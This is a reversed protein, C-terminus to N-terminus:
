EPPGIFGYYRGMWYAMLWDNPRDEREGGRGIVMYYPEQDFMVLGMESRNPIRKLKLGDVGPTLDREVDERLRNDVTWEIHDLPWDRLQEISKNVPVTAGSYQNYVFDYFPIQDKAVCPYWNKICQQFMAKLKPNLAHTVANPFVITMLEDEIHTRESPTVYKASLALKDYGHKEILLKAADQYKQKGTMHFATGLFALIEIANGGAEENWTPDGKLSSPNWHGWRTAVGDVDQLVFGNDVIGGIIRDVQEAVRKKEADDACLDYYLGYGFMHGDVEDSSADRKWLWKGDASPLWRKPFIKERPETRHSEAIEQPTFTRDVEHRPPIGVSLVSRAIFHNTGTVRQLIEMAHFAAKANERADPAKTLHYRMSEVALYMGTHEGDNDDDEIFSKGVDGPTVLVAPGILGPERIHRARIMKLYYDAKDALTMKKRRIADVGGATAVWGTGDSSTAVDRADDNLLWRRSHRLSWEGNSYRVVGGQTAIWLRGDADQTVGRSHRFPMGDKATLSKVRKAGKYFDLGGTSAICVTGDPLEFLSNVNSSLLVDPRGLRKAPPAGDRLDQIYLGSATGIWLKNDATLHLARINRHWAGKVPKWGADGERIFIGHPGAVVLRVKGGSTQTWKESLPADYSLSIGCVTTESKRTRRHQYGAWRTTEGGLMRSTIAGIPDQNPGTSTVGSIDVKFVGNWAGAWIAGSSDIHITSTPGMKDAGAPTKWEGDKLYRVGAGTAIWVREQKDLLISRVDNAEGSLPYAEHYDQYFPIDRIVPQQAQSPAIPL